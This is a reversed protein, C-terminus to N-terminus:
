LLCGPIWVQSVSRKIEDTIRALHSDVIALQIAGTDIPHFPIIRNGIRNLLEPRSLEEAFFRQVAENFHQEIRRRQEAPELETAELLTQLDRSEDIPAGRSDTSRTGINSTFVLITETFYVTQGRSDTLRGDDLIQLFIDLIKPHAKEIEDFLVVCFPKERVGNTLTGGEEFGVYGPPSGIM